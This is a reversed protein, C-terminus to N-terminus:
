VLGEAIQFLVYFIGTYSSGSIQYTGGERSVVFAEGDMCGKVKEWVRDCLYKFTGNKSHGVDTPMGLYRDNLSENQVQLKNKM